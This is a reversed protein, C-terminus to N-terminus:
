LEGLTVGGGAAVQCGGCTHVEEVEGRCHGQVVAVAQLVVGGGCVVCVGLHTALLAHGTPLEAVGLEALANALRNVRDQLEAYTIRRGEFVIAPRDPVIAAAIALFETTNM